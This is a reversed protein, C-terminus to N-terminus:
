RTSKWRGRPEERNGWISEMVLCTRDLQRVVGTKGLRKREVEGETEFEAVFGCSTKFPVSCSPDELLISVQNREEGELGAALVLVCSGPNVGRM